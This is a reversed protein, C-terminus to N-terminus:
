AKIIREAIEGAIEDAKNRAKTMIDECVADGDSLSRAYEEEAKEEAKKLEAARKVKFVAIAGNKIKEGDADASVRKQKAKAIAQATIKDATEEAQLISAIVENM